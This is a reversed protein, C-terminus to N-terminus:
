RSNLNPASDTIASKTPPQRTIAITSYIKVCRKVGRKLWVIVEFHPTHAFMDLVQATQPQFSPLCLLDAALTEINCSSYIVDNAGSKELFECLAPGLGRRPPNVIICDARRGIQVSKGIHLSEAIALADGAYFRANTLGAAYASERAALIAESSCEVGTVEVSPLARAAHLAFGGVGCFLDLVSTPQMTQLWSTACQYLAAAMASNTQFFSQPRLYLTLDNVMMPLATCETLVIEEVGELIAKPEPQLNVSVVLLRPLQTLLALLQKRVRDLAEKSRLVLRLMLAGASEPSAATLILYKLEGTRRSIDYPAIAVTSLWARVIPWADGIAPPYLPCHALELTGAPQLIGLIPAQATGGVVMKAKNRFASQASPQPTLWILSSNPKAAFIAAAARAQKANLQERYSQALWSCSTCRKAQFDACNLHLEM